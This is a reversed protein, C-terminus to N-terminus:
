KRYQVFTGWNRVCFYLAGSLCRLFCNGVFLFPARSLKNCNGLPVCGGGPCNFLVVAYVELNVDGSSVRGVM